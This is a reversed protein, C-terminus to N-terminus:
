RIPEDLPVYRARVEQVTCQRCTDANLLALTLRATSPVQVGAIQDLDVRVVNPTDAGILIQLVGTTSDDRQTLAYVSCGHLCPNRFEVVRSTDTSGPEILPLDVVAGLTLPGAGRVRRDLFRTLQWWYFDKEGMALASLESRIAAEVQGTRFLLAAQSDFFEQKPKRRIAENVAELAVSLEAPTAAQDLYVSWAFENLAAPKTARSSAFAREVALMEDSVPGSRAHAAALALGWGFAAVSALVLIRTVVSPSLDARIVEVGRYLLLTVVVGALAGGAHAGVDIAPLLVTIAM